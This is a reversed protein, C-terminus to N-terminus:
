HIDWLRSNLIKQSIFITLDFSHYQLCERVKESSTVNCFNISCGNYLTVMIQKHHIEQEFLIRQSYIETLFIGFIIIQSLAWQNKSRVTLSKSLSYYSTVSHNVKWFGVLRSFLIMKISLHSFQWKVKASQMKWCDNAIVYSANQM